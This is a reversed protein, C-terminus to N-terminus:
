HQHKGEKEETVDEKEEEEEKRRAVTIDKRVNQKRQTKEQLQVGSPDDEVLGRLTLAGNVVSSKQHGKTQIAM